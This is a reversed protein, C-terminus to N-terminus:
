ADEDFQVGFAQVRLANIDSESAIRKLAEKANEATDRIRPSANSIRSFDLSTRVCARLREGTESKFLAYFDEANTNALIMEDAESWGSSSYMKLLVDRASEEKLSSQYIVAFRERMREDTVGGYIAYKGLDFLEVEHGREEAYFDIIENAKEDEGLKRFLDVTRSLEIPTVYEVTAKFCQYISDIAHDKDDSFSDLYPRWAEALTGTARTSVIEENKKKAIDIFASEDIYGARVANALVGDLDNTFMYEYKRLKAAWVKEQPDEEEDKKGTKGALQLTLSPSSPISNNFDQVYELTPIDTNGSRYRCWGYLTLSHVVQRTLDQEFEALLPLALDILREIKKLTRINSIDLTESFSRLLESAYGDRTIAIETCEKATPAFELEIDITKERYKDYDELGDEEDNLLLVIKCDRRDKLFSVLGLVDRLSLTNGKRELDDICILTKRISMFSLSEIAPSIGKTWPTWVLAALTKRSFSEVLGKTNNRLTEISPETGILDREVVQEFLAYKFADLSNVGFLSVYSYRPMAIEGPTKADRLFKNWSYTKGVGWKGRIALVEPVSSALFRKIESKVLEITM